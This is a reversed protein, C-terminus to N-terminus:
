LSTGSFPDSKQREDQLSVLVREAWSSVFSKRYSDTANTAVSLFSNPKDPDYRAADLAVSLGAAAITTTGIAWKSGFFTKRIGQQKAYEILDRKCINIKKQISGPDPRDKKEACKGQYFYTLNAAGGSMLATVFGSLPAIVSIELASLNKDKGAVTDNLKEHMSLFTIGFIFNYLIQPAAGRSVDHIGKLIGNQFTEQFIERNNLSSSLKKCNVLANLQSIGTDATLGACSTIFKSAFPSGTLNELRENQDFIVARLVTKALRAGINFSLGEFLKGQKCLARFTTALLDNQSANVNNRAL